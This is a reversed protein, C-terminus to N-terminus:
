TLSLAETNMRRQQRVGHSTEPAQGNTLADYQCVTMCAPM